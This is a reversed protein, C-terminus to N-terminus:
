GHSKAEARLRALMADLGREDLPGVFEDNVQLMPAMECAALCEVEDLTFEGDATTEM